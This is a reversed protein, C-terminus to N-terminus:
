FRYMVGLQGQFNFVDNRPIYYTGPVYDKMLWQYNLSQIGQLKASVIFHNFDYQGQLALAYDVWKRSLGNYDRIYTNYFDMNREYRDVRFGIRKFNSVWNLQLSQLNGGSGPGAGITQGFHTYGQRIAGHQYFGGAERVLRDSSQSMQLAELNVHIYQSDKSRMPILKSLGVLYSRGHDPSGLFDHFNYANDNLGYEFYVEAHAKPMLWRTYLSIRQDRDFQDQDEDFKQLKTFLPVYDGFGRLDDHYSMFTRSFGLFLGPLWKPQYSINTGFLYRWIDNYPAFGADQIGSQLPLEESNLLKGGIMSAEFSGIPTKIPKNSGLVFHEFGPANNTFSLSNLMGPGWWINETSVGASVPGFNLKVSSQGLFFKSYAGEGFREPQDIYNYFNYYPNIESPTKGTRFGTYAPNAAYVYEPKLQITLPGAKVFVGASLYTQFGKAPIMAGDNWGFPHHTNVQNLWVIPLLSIRGKGKLFSFEGQGSGGWYESKGTNDSIFPRNAFSYSSDLQGALQKFRLYEDLAFGGVPVTQAKVTAISFCILFFSLRRLM